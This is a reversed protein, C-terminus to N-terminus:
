ATEAGPQPLATGAARMPPPAKDSHSYPVERRLRQPVKCSYLGESVRPGPNRIITKFQPPAIPIRVGSRKCAMWHCGTWQRAYGCTVTGSLAGLDAQTRAQQPVERSYARRGRGWSSLVRVGVVLVAYRRATGPRAGQSGRGDRRRNSM